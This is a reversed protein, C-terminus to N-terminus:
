VHTLVQPARDGASTFWLYILVPCQGHRSHVCTSSVTWVIFTCMYQVNYMGHIFTCMYQISDIGRIYVHVPCQGHRSHICTSSVTWATLTCKYQVNDMGHIYMHVACQGHRIYQVSDMGHIFTCIYQVTDTNKLDVNVHILFSFIRVVSYMYEERTM